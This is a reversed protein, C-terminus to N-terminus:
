PQLRTGTRTLPHLRGRLCFTRAVGCIDELRHLTAKGVPRLYHASWYIMIHGSTSFGNMRVNLVTHACSCEIQLQKQAEYRARQSHHRSQRADLTCRIFISTSILTIYEIENTPPPASVGPYQADHRLIATRESLPRRRESLMPMGCCQM